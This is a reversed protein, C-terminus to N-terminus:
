GEDLDGAFWDDVSNLSFMDEGNGCSTDQSFFDTDWDNNRSCSSQTFWSAQEQQQSSSTLTSALSAASRTSPCPSGHCVRTEPFLKDKIESNFLRAGEFLDGCFAFRKQKCAEEEEEEKITRSRTQMRSKSAKLQFSPTSTSSSCTYKRKKEMPFGDRAHIRDWHMRTHYLRDGFYSCESCQFFLVSHKSQVQLKEMNTADVIRILEHGRAVKLLSGDAMSAALLMREEETCYKKGDKIVRQVVEELMGSHVMPSQVHFIKLDPKKFAGWTEM